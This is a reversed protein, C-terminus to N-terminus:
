GNRLRLHNFSDIWLLVDSSERTARMGASTAVTATDCHIRRQFGHALSDLGRQFQVVNRMM